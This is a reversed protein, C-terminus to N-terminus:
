QRSALLVTGYSVGFHKAAEHHSMGSAVAAAIQERRVRRQQHTLITKPQKKVASRRSYPCTGHMGYHRENLITLGSSKHARIEDSEAQRSEEEGCVERLIILSPIYGRQKLTSIWKHMEPNAQSRYHALFRRWLDRTRGIYRITKGDPECLAYIFFRNGSVPQTATSDLMARVSEIELLWSRGSIKTGALQGGAILQRVRGPTIQLIAAADNTSILESYTEM